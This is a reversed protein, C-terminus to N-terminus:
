LLKIQAHACYNQFEVLSEYQKKDLNFLRCFSNYFGYEWKIRKQRLEQIQKKKEVDQISDLLSKFDVDVMM